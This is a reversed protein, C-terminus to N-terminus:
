QELLKILYSCFNLGTRIDSPTKALIVVGGVADNRQIKYHKGTGSVTLGHYELEKIMSSTVKKYGRFMNRINDKEGKSM